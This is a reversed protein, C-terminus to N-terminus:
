KIKQMTEIKDQALKLNNELQEISDFYLNKDSGYKELSTYWYATSETVYYGVEFGDETAFKNEVYELPQKVDESADFKLKQIAKNIEKLDEYAIFATPSAYKTKFSIVCYYQAEKSDIVIKRINCEATEYKSNISPLSTRFFKIMSGSKSTFKQYKTKVEDKEQAFLNLTIFIISLLLIAKRM